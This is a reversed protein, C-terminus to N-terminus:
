SGGPGQHVLGAEEDGEGYSKVSRLRGGAKVYETKLTRVM